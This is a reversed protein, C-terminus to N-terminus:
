PGEGGSGVFKAPYPAQDGMVAHWLIRNFTDEDAVDAEDLDLELSKQARALAQGQLQRLPPNLEDLAIRNSVATFPALDPTTQFCGRMPTASLDLQNMPPLGLILEITKVMGTQNYCTSDISKRRNYASIAMGVTRHGDVHDFGNQPDDEVAFLVTDRWFRSKSVAEVVRGLALDNDAVMARPTPQGPRTGSTHDCPLYLYILNPLEGTRECTALWETFLKARYVDPITLTFGPYGAHTHPELSKVTVRTDVKFKNDGTQFQRYMDSWTARSPTALKVFEGFNHLTKKRSLANDWLFGSSAYALSDDGDYPYSRTFGGFAKELYDTVYAENVWQHGDASLVGSCYFNDFLTFERALKHHNPTVEEGFMCLNKDGNGIELDGLVQDYTRNEKIIYIVHKFSSPEGHRLPVPAPAADARPKELGALSYALRNNANVKKTDEALLADDPIDIISLSGLHDHSNMGKEPVREAKEGPRRRGISGLGKVNAVILKKGDGSPMLAGPYWGTPILGMLLSGAPAGRVIASVVAVCNNTGNAVYLTRGDPSLALANCGSGFPLRDEPRCSITEVVQGLDTSIVSVTDSNANAAYVLSRDRSLAMGAPHLGVAITKVQQWKGAVVQLVSVTGRNAIGREDVHTPTGSSPAQAQGVKPRDGGWNTVYCLDPRLCCIAYPAVGVPVEQLLKGSAAQILCASNGRSSLVWIADDSLSAIGTPYASGGASPKPMELPKEWALTGNQNRVAVRVHDKADTVYIHRGQVLLGTASFGVPSTLSQKIAGTAIDVVLLDKMNKVLVTDQDLPALDVPRGPFLVQKGVPDLIQNTPVVIRGDPQVGVKYQEQGIAAVGPRDDASVVQLTSSFFAAALLGLYFFSRLIGRM